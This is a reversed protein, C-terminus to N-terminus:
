KLQCKVAVGSILEFVLDSGPRFVDGGAGFGEMLPRLRLRTKRSDIDIGRSFVEAQRVMMVGTIGRTDTSGLLELVAGGALRRLGDCGQANSLDVLESAAGEVLHCIRDDGQADPSCVLELAAGKLPPM